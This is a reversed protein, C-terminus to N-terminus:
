TCLVLCLADTDSLHIWSTRGRVKKLDRIVQASRTYQEQLVSHSSKVYALESDKAAVLEDRAKEMATIREEFTAIREVHHLVVLTAYPPFHCFRTLHCTACFM